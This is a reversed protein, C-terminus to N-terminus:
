EDLVSLDASFLDRQREGTTGHGGGGRRHGGRDIGRCGDPGTNTPQSNPAPFLEDHAGPSTPLHCTGSTAPCMIPSSWRATLPILINTGRFTADFAGDITGDITGDYRLCTSGRIRRCRGGGYRSCARVSRRGRGSTPPPTFVAPGPRRRPRG